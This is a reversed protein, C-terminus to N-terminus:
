RRRGARHRHPHRQRYFFSLLVPYIALIRPLWKVKAVFKLLLLLIATSVFSVYPTGNTPHYFGVALGQHLAPVGGDRETSEKALPDPLVPEPLPLYVPLRLSYLHFLIEEVVFNSFGGASFIPMTSDGSEIETYSPM